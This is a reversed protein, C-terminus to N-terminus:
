IIPQMFTTVPTPNEDSNERNRGVFRANTKPYATDSVIEYKRLVKKANLSFNDNAFYMLNQMEYTGFKKICFMKTSIKYLLSPKLLYRVNKSAATIPTGTVNKNKFNKAKLFFLRFCLKM